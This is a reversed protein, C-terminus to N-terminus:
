HNLNISNYQTTCKGMNNLITLMLRTFNPEDSM